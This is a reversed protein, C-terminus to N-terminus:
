DSELTAEIEERSLKHVKAKEQSVHEMAEQTLQDLLRAEQAALKEALARLQDIAARTKALKVIVTVKTERM